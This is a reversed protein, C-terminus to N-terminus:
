VSFIFYVIGFLSWLVITVVSNCVRNIKILLQKILLPVHHFPLGSSGVVHVWRFGGSGVQGCKFGRSGVHVWMFEQGCSCRVVGSGVQVWKFEDSDVHVWTFGGSGM